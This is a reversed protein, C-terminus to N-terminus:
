STWEGASFRSIALREGATLGVTMTRRDARDPETSPVESEAMYVRAAVQLAVARITDSIVTPATGGSGSGSGAEAETPRGHDYMVYINRHGKPWRYGQLRWLIGADGVRFDVDVVLTVANEGDADHVIVSAVSTVPLEPLLIGDLDNGDVFVEDDLVQDITQEISDRISDSASRVAIVALPDNDDLDLRLYSGLEETTIFPNRM